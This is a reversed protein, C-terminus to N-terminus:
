FKIIANYDIRKNPFKSKYAATINVIDELPFMRRLKNGFKFVEKKFNLQHYNCSIEEKLNLTHWNGLLVAYPKEEDIVKIYHADKELVYENVIRKRIPAYKDWYKKLDHPYYKDHIEKFNSKYKKEINENNGPIIKGGQSVIYSSVANWYMYFNADERWPYAKNPFIIPYEAIELLFSKDTIELTQLVDITTPINEISHRVGFMYPMYDRSGHQKWVYGKRKVM